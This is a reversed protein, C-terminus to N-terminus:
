VGGGEGGRGRGGGRGWDNVGRAAGGVGEGAGEVWRDDLCHGPSGAVSLCEGRGAAGEDLPSPQNRGDPVSGGEDSRDGRWGPEQSGPPAGSSSPAASCM